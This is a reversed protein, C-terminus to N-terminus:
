RETVILFIEESVMESVAGDVRYFLVDVAGISMDWEKGAFIDRM